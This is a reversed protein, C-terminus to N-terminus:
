RCRERALDNKCATFIQRFSGVADAETQGTTGMKLREEAPSLAIWGGCHRCSVQPSIEFGPLM